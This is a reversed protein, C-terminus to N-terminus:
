SFNSFFTSLLWSKCSLSGEEYPSEVEGHTEVLSPIAEFSPISAVCLIVGECTELSKYNPLMTLMHSIFSANIKHICLHPGYHLLHKSSLLHHLLLIGVVVPIEVLSLTVELSLIVGM